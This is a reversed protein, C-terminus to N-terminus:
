MKKSFDFGSEEHYNKKEFAVQNLTFFHTHSQPAQLCTTKCGFQGPQLVARKCDKQSSTIAAHTRAHLAERSLVAAFSLCAYTNTGHALPISGSIAPPHM